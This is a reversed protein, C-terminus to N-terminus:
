EETKQLLLLLLLRPLSIGQRNSPRRPSMCPWGAVVNTTIVNVNRDNQKTALVVGVNANQSFRCRYNEQQDQFHGIIRTGWKKEEEGTGKREGGFQTATSSFIAFYDSGM